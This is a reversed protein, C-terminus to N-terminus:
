DPLISITDQFGYKIHSNYNLNFFANEKIKQDSSEKFYLGNCGYIATIAQSQSGILGKFHFGIIM